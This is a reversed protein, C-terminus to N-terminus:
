VLPKNFHPHSCYPVVPFPCALISELCCILVRPPHCAPVPNTIRPCPSCLNFVFPIKNDLCESTYLSADVTTSVVIQCHTASSGPNLYLLSSSQLNIVPTCTRCTYLQPFRSFVKGLPPLCLQAEAPYPWPRLLVRGEIPAELRGELDILTSMMSIKSWPHMLSTAAPSDAVSRLAM